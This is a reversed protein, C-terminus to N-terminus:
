YIDMILDDNLYLPYDWQNLQKAKNIAEGLKVCNKFFEINKDGRFIQFPYQEATDITYFRFFDIKYKELFDEQVVYKKLLELKNVEVAKFYLSEQYHYSFDIYNNLFPHPQKSFSERHSNYTKYDIPIIVKNELDFLVEDLLAKFEIKQWTFTLPVQFARICKNPALANRKWCESSYMNAVLKFGFEKDEKSVPIKDKPCENLANVWPQIISFFFSKIKEIDKIRGDWEAENKSELVLNVITNDDAIVGAKKLENSKELYIKAWKLEKENLKELNVEYYRNDFNELDTIICDVLSGLFYAPIEEQKEKDLIAKAKKPNQSYAVILSQNIADYNRYEQVSNLIM